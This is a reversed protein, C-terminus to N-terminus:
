PVVLSEEEIYGSGGANIVILYVIYTGAASYTKSPNQVTSYTGDGFSWLWQIPSNTSKDTFQMPNGHAPIPITRSFNAVPPLVSNAPKKLIDFRMIAQINATSAGRNALTIQCTNGAYLYIDYPGYFLTSVQGVGYYYGICIDGVYCIMSVANGTLCAVRFERLVYIINSGPFTYTFFQTAGAALTNLQTACFPFSSIAPMTQISPPAHQQHGDPYDVM